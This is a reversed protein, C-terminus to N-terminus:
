FCSFFFLVGVNKGLIISIKIHCFICDSWSAVHFRAVACVTPDLRRFWQRGGGSARRHVLFEVAHRGPKQAAERSCEKGWQLPARADINGGFIIEVVRRRQDSGIVDSRRGLSLEIKKNRYYIILAM